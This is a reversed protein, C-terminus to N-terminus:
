QQKNHQKKYYSEESYPAVGTANEIRYTRPFAIESNRLGFARGRLRDSFRIKLCLNLGKGEDTVNFVSYFVC